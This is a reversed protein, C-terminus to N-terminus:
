PLCSRSEQLQVLSSRRAEVEQLLDHYKAIMAKSHVVEAQVRELEARQQAPTLEIGPLADVHAHCRKLAQNFEHVDHFKKSDDDKSFGDSSKVTSLVRSVLALLQSVDGQLDDATAM